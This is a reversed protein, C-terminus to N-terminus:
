RLALRATHGDSIALTRRKSKKGRLKPDDRKDWRATLQFKEEESITYLKKYQTRDIGEHMDILHQKFNYKWVAPALPSCEPCRIPHNTCPNSRSYEAAAAIYINHLLPCRSNEMDIKVAGNSGKGKTLYLTCRGPRLCFGCPMSRRSITRDGLIHMASHALGQPGKSLDPAKPCSACGSPDLLDGGASGEGGERDCLFCASDIYFTDDINM